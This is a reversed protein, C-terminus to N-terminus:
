QLPTKEATETQQHQEYLLDFNIPNLYLPPFGARTTMSTIAERAYPFLINPCFSGLLQRLQEGEFNQAMFIGAQKVEALFAVKDKVKVTATVTLVVEHTVEDLARAKTDLDLNLEPKWEELFIEPSHPAEFSSDKVYIRQIAFGPASPNSDQNENAASM